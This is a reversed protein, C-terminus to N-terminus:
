PSGYEGYLKPLYYGYYWGAYDPSGKPKADKEFFKKWVKDQFERYKEEYKRKEEQKKYWAAEAYHAIIFEGVDVALDPAANTFLSAGVQYDGSSTLSVFNIAPNRTISPPSSSGAYSSTEDQVWSVFLAFRDDASLGAWQAILNERTM